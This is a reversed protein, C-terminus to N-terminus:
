RVGWPMRQVLKESCPAHARRPPTQHLDGGEPLVQGDDELDELLLKLAGGGIRVRGRRLPMLLLPPHVIYASPACLLVRLLACARM